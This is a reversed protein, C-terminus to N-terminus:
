SRAAAGDPARLVLRTGCVLDYLARHRSDVIVWLFPLLALLGLWPSWRGAAGLSCAM